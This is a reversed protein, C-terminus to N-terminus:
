PEEGDMRAGCNPCFNSKVVTKRRCKYNHCIYFRGERWKPEGWEDTGMFRSCSYSEWYSHLVPAVDAVPIGAFVDVLDGMPIKYATAVKEAAEAANIYKAM